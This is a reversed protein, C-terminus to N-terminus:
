KSTEWFFDVPNLGLPTHSDQRFCRVKFTTSTITHVVYIMMQPIVGGLGGTTLVLTPTAGLGHTITVDGLADSSATYHGHTRKTELAIIDNEASTLDARLDGVVTSISEEGLNLLDSFLSINDDEGYIYVGNADTFGTAM